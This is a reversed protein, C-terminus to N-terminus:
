SEECSNRLLDVGLSKAARTTVGGNHVLHVPSTMLGRVSLSDLYVGEAGPVVQAGVSKSPHMFCASSDSVVGFRLPDNVSYIAGSSLVASHEWPTGKM